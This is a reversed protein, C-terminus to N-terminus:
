IRSLGNLDIGSIFAATKIGTRVSQFLAKGGCQEFYKAIAHFNVMMSFSGHFALHPHDLHDIEELHTYGKDTSLLLM